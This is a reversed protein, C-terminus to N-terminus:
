PNWWKMQIGKRRPPDVPSPSPTSRPIMSSIQDTVHSISVLQHSIQDRVETINPLHSSIQDAVNSVNLTSLVYGGGLLSSGTMCGTTKSVGLWPGLFTGIACGLTSTGAVNTLYTYETYIDVAHWSVWLLAIIAILQLIRWIWALYRDFREECKNM